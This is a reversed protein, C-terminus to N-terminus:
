VIDNLSYVDIYKKAIQKLKQDETILVLKHKRATHIYSADYVTLGTALAIDLIEPGNNPYIRITKMLDLIWTCTNALEYVKEKELTKILRFEKWLANFIEYITLDAVYNDILVDINKSKVANIFSSADFLYHKMM